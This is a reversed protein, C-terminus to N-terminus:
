NVQDKNNFTREDHVEEEYGSARAIEEGGELKGGM